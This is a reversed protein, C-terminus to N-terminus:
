NTGSLLIRKKDFEVHQRFGHYRRQSFSMFDIPFGSDIRLVDSYQNRLRATKIKKPRRQRDGSRASPIGCFPSMSNRGMPMPPEDDQPIYVSKMNQSPLSPAAASYYPLPVGNEGTYNSMPLNLFKSNNPFRNAGYQQQLRPTEM